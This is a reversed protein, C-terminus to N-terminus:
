GRGPQPERRRRRAPFEPRPRARAAASTGRAAKGTSVGVVGPRAPGPVRFGGKGRGPLSRQKPTTARPHLPAARRGLWVAHGRLKSLGFAGPPAPPSEPDVETSRVSGPAVTYRHLRYLTCGRRCGARGSAVASENGAGFQDAQDRSRNSRAALVLMPARSGAPSSARGDLRGPPQAYCRGWRYRASFPALLRPCHGRPRPGPRPGPCPRAAAESRGGGGRRRGVPGRRRRGVLERRRRGVLERM